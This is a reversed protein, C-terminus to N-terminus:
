EWQMKGIDKLADDIEQMLGKNMSELKWTRKESDNPDRLEFKEFQDKDLDIISKPIYFLSTKGKGPMYKIRNSIDTNSIIFGRIPIHSFAM